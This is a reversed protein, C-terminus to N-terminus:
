PGTQAFAELASRGGGSLRLYEEMSLLVMVPLGGETVFVPGAEATREAAKLDEALERGTLTTIATM